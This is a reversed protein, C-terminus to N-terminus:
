KSVQFRSQRTFNRLLIEASVAKRQPKLLPIKILHDTRLIVINAAVKDNCSQTKDDDSDDGSLHLLISLIQEDILFGRSM